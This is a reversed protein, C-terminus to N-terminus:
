FPLPAHNYKAVVTLLLIGAWGIEFVSHNLDTPIILLM